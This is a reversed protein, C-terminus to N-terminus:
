SSNGFFERYDLELYPLQCPNGAALWLRSIELDMIISGLTAIQDAPPKSEDIHSCVSDPFNYHDSLMAGLAKVDLLQAEAELASSMREYRVQSDDGDLPDLDKFYPSNQLFHNTHVLKGELPEQQNLHSSDGPAAEINQMHGNRHAILYNAASARGRKPVATLADEYTHSELIGRLIAHYPVGPEGQDLDTVLANTVVGVGAANMGTKALIGAEVLTVFSPIDEGEAELLVLSPATMPRWDWNQGILVHAKQTVKPLAGFATCEAAAGQATVHNLIETRINLALIDEFTVGAGFAIGQMEELLHPRYAKIPAWYARAFTQAQHWEWGLYYNYIKEYAELSHRIQLAAGEGYGKGRAFVNGSVRIHPYTPHSNM